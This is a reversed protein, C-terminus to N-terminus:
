PHLTQLGATLADHLRTRVRRGTDLLSELNKKAAGALRGVEDFENLLTLAHQVLLTLAHQLQAQM